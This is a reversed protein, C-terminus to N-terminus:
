RIAEFEVTLSRSVKVDGLQQVGSNEAYIAALVNASGSESDRVSVIKGLKVGSLEALVAAKKKAKAIADKWAETETPSLDALTGWVMSGGSNYSSSGRGLKGGSLVVKEEVRQVLDALEALQEPKNPLLIEFSESVAYSTPPVEVDAGLVPMVVGMMQSNNPEAITKGLSKLEIGAFDMPNLSNTLKKFSTAFNKAAEAITKGDKSLTAQIVLQDSQASAKGVGVVTITGSQQAALLSETAVFLCIAFSVLLRLSRSTM